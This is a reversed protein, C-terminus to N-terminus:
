VERHGGGLVCLICKAFMVAMKILKPAVVCSCFCHSYEVTYVFAQGIEGTNSCMEDSILILYVSKLVDSLKIM